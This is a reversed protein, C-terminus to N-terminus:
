PAVPTVLYGVRDYLEDLTGNNPITIDVLEMPTSQESAHQDELDAGPRDIYAITGGFEKLLKVENDFRADTVVWDTGDIATELKHRVVDVWISDWFVERHAETGYNQLFARATLYYREGHPAHVAVVVDPDNKWEDWKEKPFGWIAAASEKLTDAFSLRTFGFHEVLYAGAADKGSGKKGCFGIIM